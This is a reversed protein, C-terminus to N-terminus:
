SNEMGTIHLFKGHLKRKQQPRVPVNADGKGDTALVKQGEPNYDLSSAIVGGPPLAAAAVLLWIASRLM